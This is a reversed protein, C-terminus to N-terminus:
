IIGLDRKVKIKIEGTEEDEVYILGSIRRMLNSGLDHLNKDSYVLKWLLEIIKLRDEYDLKKIEQTYYLIQNSNQELEECYNVLKNLYEIELNKYNKILNIILEKKISNYNEDIKAAYILLAAIAIEDNLFIVEKKKNYNFLNLIKKLM